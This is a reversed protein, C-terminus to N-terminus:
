DFSTFLQKCYSEVVTAKIFIWNLTKKLSVCFTRLCRWYLWYWRKQGNKVNEAQLIYCSNKRHKVFNEQLMKKTISFSVLSFFDVVYCVKGREHDRHNANSVTCFKVEARLRKWTSQHLKHSFHRSFKSSLPLSFSPFFVPHNYSFCIITERLYFSRCHSFLLYKICLNWPSPSSCASNNSSLLIFCNSKRCPCDRKSETTLLFIKVEKWLHFNKLLVLFVFCNEM